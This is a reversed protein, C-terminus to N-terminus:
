ESIIVLLDDIPRRAQARRVLAAIMDVPKADQQRTAMLPMEIGVQNITKQLYVMSDISVEVDSLSRLILLLQVALQHQKSNDADVDRDSLVTGRVSIMNMMTRFQMTKGTDFGYQPAKGATVTDPVLGTAVAICFPILLQEKELLPRARELAGPTVACYTVFCVLERVTMTPAYKCGEGVVDASVDCGLKWDVGVPPTLQQEVIARMQGVFVSQVGGTVFLLTENSLPKGTKSVIMLPLPLSHVDFQAPAIAEIRGSTPDTARAKGDIFPLLVRNQKGGGGGTKTILNMVATKDAADPFADVRAWWKGGTRGAMDRPVAEISAWIDFIANMSRDLSTVDVLFPGFNAFNDM